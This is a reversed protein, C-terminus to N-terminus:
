FLADFEEKAKKNFEVYDFPKLDKLRTKDYEEMGKLLGEVSDEVLYGYGQELFEKPGTISTSIIPKELILAEMIVMPLGEYHSSLIFADSKSLVPYPNALSRIVVINEKCFSNDVQSMLENYSNGHGGIVILYANPNQNYYKEFASVLNDLGKEPSFRAINIFKQSSPDSLISKIEEVTHTSVTDPDFLISFEANQKILDYNNFNHATFIKNQINKVSALMEKRMSDRIVIIRDFENYCSKITPLHLNKRTKHEKILNNHVYTMRICNLNKLLQMYQREYGTYHIAYRFDIEPYVRKIERKYISTIKKNIWKTQWNLRFYLFYAITESIRYNKQGMISIYDFNGLEPITQRNKQVASKSFTLVYNYKEKDLNNLLGKLATTIGNRLLAGTFILVNEKKCSYEEGDIINLEKSEGTQMLKLLANITNKIDYETLPDTQERYDKFDNLNEIESILQTTNSVTTFMLSDFDMYMGRDRLYDEKDYSYLIIKRGTNAFDFMVSSYDTILADAISLFEYTEFEKPFPKVNSFQGFDIKFASMNHEKVFILTDESISKQLEFLMHM